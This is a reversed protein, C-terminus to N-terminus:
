FCRQAKVMEYAVRGREQREYIEGLTMARLQTPLNAFEAESVKIVIQDWDIEGLSGGTPMQPFKGLLVPVSGVALAEWLRLSNPGAGSPCLAFKSDSLIQNYYVVSTDISYNEELSLGMVQHKYVVDEFHWKDMLKILFDPETEFQKLRLRIDSIYHNAHAGIFSALIKKYAPAKYSDLGESRDKDMANVAYLSWPHFTFDLDPEPKSPAHSLWLDTVGLEQWVPLCKEWYIHQCVTHLKFNLGVEGLAGRIGTIRTKLTSVILEPFSKKDIYTSWPLGIYFNLTDGVRKPFELCLHNEFAIKETICPFQWFQIDEVYRPSDGIGSPLPEILGKSFGFEFFNTKDYEKWNIDLDSINIVRKFGTLRDSFILELNDRSVLFRDFWFSNILKM